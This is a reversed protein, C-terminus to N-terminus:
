VSRLISSKVLHKLVLDLREKRETVSQSCDKCKEFLKINCTEVIFVRHATSYKMKLSQQTVSYNCQSIVVYSHM